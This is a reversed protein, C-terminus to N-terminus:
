FFSIFGYVDTLLPVFRANSHSTVETIIIDMKRTDMVRLFKGLGLLLGIPSSLWIRSTRNREKRKGFAGSLKRVWM